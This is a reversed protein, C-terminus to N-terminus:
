NSGKSVKERKQCTGNAGVYPQAVFSAVGAHNTVEAPSAMRVPAHGLMKLNRHTRLNVFVSRKAAHNTTRPSAVASTEQPSLDEILHTEIQSVEPM